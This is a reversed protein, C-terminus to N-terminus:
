LNALLRSFMQEPRKRLNYRFEFEGLYKPLHQRSVHIHTGRISRKLMSWFAELTNVHTDGQAWQKAGHDVVSHEYGLASLVRYPAWEDSSIRTGKPVQRTIEPVLSKRSADPVVKTFVEGGARELIGFVVSKGAAGRGRKGPRKGGVYTEDVEVHGTLPPEGDVTGMYERIKHAMRFATPYSVGIQRQIEKAPVGHRTTTFLYMAYFWKQLPVHSRHFMTGVMPYIEYGCWACEYAPHRRIRHFKGHKECKPCELTEGHRLKMLYDLCADDDPFAKFFDQVTPAKNM